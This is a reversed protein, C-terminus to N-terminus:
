VTVTASYTNSVETGDAARYAAYIHLVDGTDVASPMTASATTTSRDVGLNGGQWERKTENYILAFIEDTERVPSGGSNDDWTVDVSNSGDTGSIALNDVELLNGRAIELGTAPLFGSSSDFADINRSVFLNYGSQKVAFRDNLPKVLNTLFYTALAVVGSFKSRQSQQGATNPNSVSVPQSRMYAIGKWSGGIINAVKGSFGGLIGRNIKGM